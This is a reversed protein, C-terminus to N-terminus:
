HAPMPHQRSFEAFISKLEDSSITDLRRENKKRLEYIIKSNLDLAIQQLSDAHSFDVPIPSSVVKQLSDFEHLIVDKMEKTVEEIQFKIVATPDNHKQFILILMGTVLLVLVILFKYNTKIYNM